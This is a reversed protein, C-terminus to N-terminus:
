AYSGINAGQQAEDEEGLKTGTIGTFSPKQSQDGNISALHSGYAM